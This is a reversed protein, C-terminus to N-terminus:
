GIVPVGVIYPPLGAEYRQMFLSYHKRYDQSGEVDELWSAAGRVIDGCFISVDINLVDNLINNHFVHTTAGPEVFIIRSYGLNPHQARGQHLVSCRYSYCTEGNLFARGSVSYAPTVYRDFWDVYKDRTAIGDSSEMAGCIDPLTLAVFLALYYSGDVTAKRVQGLLDRV